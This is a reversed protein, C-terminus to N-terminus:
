KIRWRFDFLPNAQAEAQQYTRLVVTM